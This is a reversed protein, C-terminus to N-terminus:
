TTYHRRVKTWDVTLCDINGSEILLRKLDREAEWLKGKLNAIADLMETREKFLTRIAVADRERNEM